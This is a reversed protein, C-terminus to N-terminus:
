LQTLVLVNGGYPLSPKLLSVVNQRVAIMLLRMQLTCIACIVVKCYASCNAHPMHIKIHHIRMASLILELGLQLEKLAESSSKKGRKRECLVRNKRWVLTGGTDRRVVVLHTSHISGSPGIGTFLPVEQIM